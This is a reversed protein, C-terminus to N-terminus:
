FVGIECTSFIKYVIKKIYNKKREQIYIIKTITYLIVINYYGDMNRINNM